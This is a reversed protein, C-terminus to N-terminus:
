IKPGPPSDLEADPFIVVKFRDGARFSLDRPRGHVPDKLIVTNVQGPLLDFFITNEVALDRLGTAPADAELYAYVTTVKVELGVWRLAIPKTDPGRLRLRESLYAFCLREADPSRDVEIQRGAMRSMVAEIDDAFLRVTIEYAKASPNYDLLTSSFHFKHARLPRLGLLSALGLLGPALAFLSRRPLRM